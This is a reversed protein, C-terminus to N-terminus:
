SKQRPSSGLLQSLEVGTGTRVPEPRRKPIFLLGSAWLTWAGLEKTPMAVDTFGVPPACVFQKASAGGFLGSFV